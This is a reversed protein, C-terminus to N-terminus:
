LIGLTRKWNFIRTVSENIRAETIEGGAVAASLADFQEKFNTCCLLDNGAKVALVAASGQDTYAKIAGMSLEDTIVVGGFNLQERLIEHVKPSLSAPLSEDVATMINHAVLVGGAEAEIGATFPLFDSKKFSELSRKDTALGTHTDVNNGYGPFHKLVAGIGEDNMASVVTKVYEATALAEQGFARSNIFDESVTSVDCLPAFNVNIGLSKLFRSKEVADARILEMGGEAFLEQPSLFPSERFKPYRSARNVTGGEEDVGILMPIKATAQYEAIKATLEAPNSDKFDKAFLIYGGLTYEEALEVAKENPCRVIFMQALKEGIGMGALTQATTEQPAPTTQVTSEEM